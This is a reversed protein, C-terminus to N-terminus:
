LSFRRCPRGVLRIQCRRWRGLHMRGPRTQRRLRDGFQAGQAKGPELRGRDGVHRRIPQGGFDLPQDGLDGRSAADLEVRALLACEGAFQHVVHEAEARQLRQELVLRMVSMMTFPGFRNEDFAAALDVIDLM